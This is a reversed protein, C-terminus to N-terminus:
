RYKKTCEGMEGLTKEKRCEPYMWWELFYPSMIVFFAGQTVGLVGFVSIGAGGGGSAVGWPVSAKVVVPTVPVVPVVPVVPCSEIFSPSIMLLILLSLILLVKM